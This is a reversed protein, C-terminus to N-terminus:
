IKYRIKIFDGYTKNLSQVTIGLIQALQTKVLKLNERECKLLYKLIQRKRTKVLKERNLSAKKSGSKLTGEQSRKYISRAISKIESAGLPEYCNNKNIYNAFGFITKLTPRTYAFEQCCLKFISDNRHSTIPQNKGVSLYSVSNTTKNEHELVDIPLAKSLDNLDYIINTYAIYTHKIPNRFIANNRASAVKDLELYQIYKSKIDMLYQQPSTKPFYGKQVTMFGNIVFGFQFGKTTQCIYNPVIDIMEILWEQFTLLDEFYELATKGEHTDKDFVAITIREKSNFEIFTNNKLAFSTNVSAKSYAGSKNNSAHIRAPLNKLLLRFLNDENTHKM